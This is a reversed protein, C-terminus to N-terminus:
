LHHVVLGAGDAPGTILAREPQPLARIFRPRDSPVSTVRVVSYVEMTGTTPGAIAAAPARPVRVQPMTVNDGGNDLFLIPLLLGGKIVPSLM